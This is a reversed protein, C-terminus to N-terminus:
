MGFTMNLKPYVLGDFTTADHRIKGYGGFTITSSGSNLNLQWHFTLDQNITLTYSGYSQAYLNRCVASVDVTCHGSQSDLYADDASTPVAGASVTRDSDSWWNAVTSWNGGVGAKGFYRNAM